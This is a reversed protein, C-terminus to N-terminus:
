VATSWCEGNAEAWPVQGEELEDVTATSASAAGGSMDVDDTLRTELELERREEELRKRVEVDRADQPVAVFGGNYLALMRKVDSVQLLSWVKEREARKQALWAELEDGTM